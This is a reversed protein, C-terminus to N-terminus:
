VLFGDASCELAKRYRLWYKWCLNELPPENYITAFVINNWVHIGLTRKLCTFYFHGPENRQCKSVLPYIGFLWTFLPMVYTSFRIRRFKSSMTGCLRYFGIIAVRQRIKCRFTSIM